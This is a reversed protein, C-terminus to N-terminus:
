RALGPFKEVSWGIASIADLRSPRRDPQYKAPGEHRIGFRRLLSVTLRLPTSHAVGRDTGSHPTRDFGCALYDSRAIRFFGLLRQSLGNTRDAFCGGFSHEM